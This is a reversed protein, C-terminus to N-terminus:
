GAKNRQRSKEGGEEGDASQSKDMKGKGVVMLEGKGRGWKGAWGEFGKGAGDSRM